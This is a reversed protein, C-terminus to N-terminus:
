ATVQGHGAEVDVLVEEGWLEDLGESGASLRRAEDVRHELEPLPGEREVLAIVIELSAERQEVAVSGVNGDDRERGGHLGLRVGDEAVGVM